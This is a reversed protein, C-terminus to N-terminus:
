RGFLQYNDIKCDSPLVEVVKKIKGKYTRDVVQLRGEAFLQICEPYLEWEVPLGREKIKKVTNYEEPISFTKQGIIPGTDEGYDIFQVTCGGVKCGFAYTDGYGDTGPFAPLLAPHINMIKPMYPNVNIKDILYPTFLRMFGALVLLDYQYKAMEELLLSEILATSALKSKNLKVALTGGLKKLIDNFNYDKPAINAGIISGARKLKKLEEGYDVVFNPIGHKEARELAFVGPRDSGVFTVEGNIRGSKCADIISQLNSGNGSVLVGIKLKKRM